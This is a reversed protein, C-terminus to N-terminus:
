VGALGDSYTVGTPGFKATKFQMRYRPDFSIHVWTGEHICQDFKIKAAAIKLCVHLPSGAAPCIFDMAYGLCHASEKSGGVAANLARSRYGSSILMPAGLLSRVAEAEQCTARLISVIDAGPTNGICKRTAEQSAVMEELSFHQSLQM